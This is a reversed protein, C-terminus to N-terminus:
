LWAPLINEGQYCQSGIMKGVARKVDLPFLLKGEEINDMGKCTSLDEEFTNM